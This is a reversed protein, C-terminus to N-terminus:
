KPKQERRGAAAQRQLRADTALPSSPYRSLLEDFLRVARADDGRDRAALASRYLRNQEALSDPPRASSPTAPRIPAPPPADPETSAPPASVAPTPTSAWADGDRLVVHSTAYVVAVEGHRVSVQTDTKGAEAAPRVTVTFETGHVVVRADPTVVSFSGKAGLKPVQFTASGRMLDVVEDDGAQALRIRTASGLDARTHSPLDLRARGTEAISVEDGVQLAASQGPDSFRTSTGRLVVLPVGETLVQAAPEANRAADRHTLGIGLLAGAALSAALVWLATRQRQAKRRAAPAAGILPGLASVVKAERLAAEDRESDPVPSERLAELARQVSREAKM